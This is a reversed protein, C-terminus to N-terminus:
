TLIRLAYRQQHACLLCGCTKGHLLLLYRSEKISFCKHFKSPFIKTNFTIMKGHTDESHGPERWIRFCAPINTQKKKPRVKSTYMIVTLVNSYHILSMYHSAPSFPSSKAQLTCM